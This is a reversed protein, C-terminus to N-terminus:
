TRESHVAGRCEGAGAGRRRWLMPIWLVAFVAFGLAATWVLGPDGDGLVRDFAM